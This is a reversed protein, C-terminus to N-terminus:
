NEVSGSEGRASAVRARPQPHLHVGFEHTLRVGLSATRLLQLIGAGYFVLFLLPLVRQLVLAHKLQRYWITWLTVGFAITLVSFIIITIEAMESHNTLVQRADMGPVPAAAAASGTLRAVLTGVTGVSM